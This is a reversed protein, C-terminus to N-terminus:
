AALLAPPPRQRVDCGFRQRPARQHLEVPELVLPARGRLARLLARVSSEVAVVIDARRRVLRLVVAFAVLLVLAVGAHVAPALAHVGTVAGLGPMPYRGVAAEVNEQFVYLAVQLLTLLPWAVLIGAVFSPRRDELPDPLEVHRGRLLAPVALRAADLRAGLVAWARWLRVGGFAAGAAIAAGLPLMYLHVSGVLERQLGAGGWVRIYEVTHGIWLGLLALATGAAVVLRRRDARHM